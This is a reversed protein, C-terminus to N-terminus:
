FYMKQSVQTDINLYSLKNMTKYNFCHITNIYKTPISSHILVEACRKRKGDEFDNWYDAELVKIPIKNVDLSSKYFKTAKSAANGDTFLFKDSRLINIDVELICLDSQKEKLVFLMPNKPQIYLPAYDHISHNYIPEKKVRYQQAEPMSIDEPNFANHAKTHSLIGNNLIDEVNDIHTIHYLADIGFEQFTDVVEDFEVDDSECTNDYYEPEHGLSHQAWEEAQKLIDEAKKAANEADLIKQRQENKEKLKQAELIKQRQESKEKLKQAELIKQRQESKEKLKQAEIKKKLREQNNSGQLYGKDSAKKYWNLATLDNKYCGLGEEYCRGLNDLGVADGQTAAKQYWKIADKVDHGKIQGREIIKGLSVQGIANGQNASELYFQFAKEENKNTGIGNLLMDGAINLAEIDEALAAKNYWYFSTNFDVNAGNGNKYILGLYKYSGIHNGKASNKFCIFAKLYNPNGKEDSYFLIGQQYLVEAKETLAEQKKIEFRRQIEIKTKTVRQTIGITKSIFLESDSKSESAVDSKQQIYVKQSDDPEAPTFLKTLEGSKVPTALQTSKNSKTKPEVPTEKKDNVQIKAVLTGIVVTLLLVHPMAAILCIPNLCFGFFLLQNLIMIVIFTGTYLKAIGTTKKYLKDLWKM